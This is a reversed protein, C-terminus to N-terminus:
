EGAAQIIATLSQSQGVHQPRVHKRETVVVPRGPRDSRVTVPEGEHAGSEVDIRVPGLGPPGAGIRAARRPRVIRRDMKWEDQDILNESVGNRGLQISNLQIIWRGGRRVDASPVQGVVPSLWLFEPNGIARGNPWAAKHNEVFARKIGLRTPRRTERQTRVTFRKEQKRPVRGAIQGTVTM